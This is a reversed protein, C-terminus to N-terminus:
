PSLCSDLLKTSGKAKYEMLRIQFPGLNMYAQRVQERLNIPYDLMQNRKAPDRELNKLDVENPNEKEQPQPENEQLNEKGQPQPENEQQNTTEQPQPESTSAKHRKSEESEHNTEKDDVNRKFFYDLTNIKGM